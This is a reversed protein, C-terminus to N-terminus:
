RDHDALWYKRIINKIKRAYDPDTAYGAQALVDVFKNPDKSFAFCGSYRSNENLFRGYDDAAESFDKYARFSDTISISKGAVVESTKFSTSSGTPSKGKIGFYANGKVQRGWASEHAAQAILVSAPVNWKKAATKAASAVTHLFSTVHAPFPKGAKETLVAITKGHPDVRGDAKVSPLYRRQFDSIAAITRPGCRGDESLSHFTPVDHFARNLLQQVLKVDARANIGAATASPDTPLQAGVAGALKPPSRRHQHHMSV